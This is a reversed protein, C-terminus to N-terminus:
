APLVMQRCGRPISRKLAQSRLSFTSSIDSFDAGLAHEGVRSLIKYCEPNPASFRNLCIELMFSGSASSLRSSKPPRGLDGPRLKWRFEFDHRVKRLFWRYGFKVYTDAFCYFKGLSYAFAIDIEECTNGPIEVTPVDTAQQPFYAELQFFKLLVAFGLRTAGTKNTLLETERPLLTWHEVLEDTEWHRKM